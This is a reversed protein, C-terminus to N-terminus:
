QNLEKETKEKETFLANFDEYAKQYPVIADKDLMQRYLEQRQRLYMEKEFETM